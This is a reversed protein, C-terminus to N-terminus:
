EEKLEKVIEIKKTTNLPIFCAVFFLIIAVIILIVINANSIYLLNPIIFYSFLINNGVEKLLFYLLIGITISVFLVLLQENIFVSHIMDESSGIVRLIAINKKNKRLSSYVLFLILFINCLTIIAILFDIGYFFLKTIDVFSDIIFYHENEIKYLPNSSNNIEDIIKKIKQEENKNVKFILVYNGISENNKEYKLLDFFSCPKSLANSINSALMKSLSEKFYFYPVYVCAENLYKFERKIIKIQFGDNFEFKEEIYEGDNENYFRVNKTINLTYFDIFNFNFQNLAIDNIILKNEYSEDYYFKFNSINIISENTKFVIKGNLFYSLDDTFTDISYNILFNKAEEIKPKEKKNITLNGINTKEYKNKYIKFVSSNISSYYLKEIGSNFGFKFAFSLTILFIGFSLSFFSLLNKKLNTKMNSKLFLSSYDKPKKYKTNKYTSQKTFDCENLESKLIGDKLFLSGDGYKYLFSENHTVILVLSSKSIEKLEEMLIKANNADLAGTPEDALIISPKNIITRILSVRQKEGGSINKVKSNKIKFLNYKKLYFDIVENKINKIKAAIEINEYITLEDFLNYNQFLIGINNRYFEEKEKSKLKNIKVGNIVVEGKDFSVIGELINLLTTKGSGSKGYLFYLGSDPLSFNVNNLVLIDNSKSINFSKYLGRVEIM